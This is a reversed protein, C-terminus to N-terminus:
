QNAEISGPLVLTTPKTDRQVTRVTVVTQSIQQAFEEQAHTAAVHRWVGTIILAAVVMVAVLPGWVAIQRVPPHLRQQPEPPPAATKAPEIRETPKHGRATLREDVTSM